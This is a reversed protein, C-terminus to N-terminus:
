DDEIIQEVRGRDVFGLRLMALEMLMGAEEHKNDSRSQLMRYCGDRHQVYISVSEVSGSDILEGCKVLLARADRIEEPEPILEATEGSRGKTEEPQGTTENSNM